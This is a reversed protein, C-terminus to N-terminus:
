CLGKESLIISRLNDVSTYSLSSLETSIGDNVSLGKSSLLDVILHWKNAKNKKGIPSTHVCSPKSGFPCKYMRRLEVERELHQQIIEVHKFSSNRNPASCLQQVRNFGIWFGCQIGHLFYAVFQKGPHAFLELVWKDSKLPTLVLTDPEPALASIPFCKEFELLHSLHM